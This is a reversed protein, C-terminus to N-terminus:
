WFPERWTNFVAALTVIQGEEDITFHVSFPFKKLGACRVNDYKISAFFPNRNIARYITELDFLFRNGSGWLQQNYYIVAEEIDTIAKPSFVIKYKKM